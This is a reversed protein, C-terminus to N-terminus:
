RAKRAAEQLRAWAGPDTSSAEAIVAQQVLEHMTLEGTEEHEDILRRRALRQLRRAVRGEPEALALAVLRTRVSEPHFAAMAWLARADEGVSLLGSPRRLAEIPMGHRWAAGAIELWLPVGGLDQALAAAPSSQAQAPPEADWAVRWLLRLSSWADLPRLVLQAAGPVVDGRRAIVLVKWPSDGRLEGVCRGDEVDELVILGPPESRGQPGGPSFPIPNPSWSAQGGPGSTWTFGTKERLISSARYVDVDPRHLWIVCRDLTAQYALHVALETRGTGPEGSVVGVSPETLSVLWGSLLEKERERATLLGRPRRPLLSPSRPKSAFPEPLPPPSLPGGFWLEPEARVTTARATAFRDRRRSFLVPAAWEAPSRHLDVTAEGFAHDVALGQRINTVVRGILACAAARDVSGRFGVAFPARRGTHVLHQAVGM